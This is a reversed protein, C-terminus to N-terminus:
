DRTAYESTLRDLDERIKFNEQDKKLKFNKFM